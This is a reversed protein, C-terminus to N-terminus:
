ERSVIPKRLHCIISLPKMQFHHPIMKPKKSDAPTLSMNVLVNWSPTSVDSCSRRCCRTEAAVTQRSAMTANALFSDSSRCNVRMTPLDMSARHSIESLTFPHESAEVLRQCCAICENQHLPHYNVHAHITNLHDLKKKTAAGLRNFGQKWKLWDHLEQSRATSAILAEPKSQRRRRGHQLLRVEM